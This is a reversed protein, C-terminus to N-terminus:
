FVEVAMRGDPNLTARAMGESTCPTAIRGTAGRAPAGHLAMAFRASPEPM